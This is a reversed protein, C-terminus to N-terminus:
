CEHPSGRVVQKQHSPDFRIGDTKGQIATMSAEESTLVRNWPNPVLLQGAKNWSMTYHETGLLQICLWNGAWTDRRPRKTQSLQVSSSVEVCLNAKYHAVTCM